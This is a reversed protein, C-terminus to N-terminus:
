LRMLATHITNPTGQSATEECPAPGALKAVPLPTTPPDWPCGRHGPHSPGPRVPLPFFLTGSYGEPYFRTRPTERSLTWVSPFPFAAGRRQCESDETVSGVGGQLCPVRSSSRTDPCHWAGLGRHLRRPGSVCSWGRSLRGQTEGRAVDLRPRTHPRTPRLRWGVSNHAVRPSCFLEIGEGGGVQFDFDLLSQSDRSVPHGPTQAFAHASFAKQTM